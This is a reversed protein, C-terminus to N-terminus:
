VNHVFGAKRLLNLVLAATEARTINDKPALIGGGRGAVLGSGANWRAAELAWGSVDTSDSFMGICGMSGEFGAIKAMRWIIIMAEQRTIPRDPAFMNGGIGEVIGCEYAKGVVGSYWSNASVDSFVTGDGDAPLGLANIIIAVFEARTIDREGAFLNNGIGSIINLSFLENVADEYWKGAADKFVPSDSSGIDDTPPPPPTPQPKPASTSPSASSGGPNPNPTQAPPTDGSNAPLWNATVTINAPVSSPAAFTTIPSTPDALTVNGGEVTWGNFIWDERTGAHITVITGARYRGEGTIEAYSDEVTLTVAPGLIVSPDAFWDLLLLVDFIDVVGDGNLDSNARNIEVSPDTHWNLFRAVDREDVVGDGNIDGYLIPTWNATIIINSRIGSPATFTTAPSTPDAPTVSDYAVTWHSFTYDTYMGNGPDILGPRTGANISVTAGADYRGEGTTGAYSGNVTVYFFPGLPITHRNQPVTELWIRLILLDFSDIVGDANVDANALNFGPNAELFAPRETATTFLYRTLLSVDESDVVGDGNVDGYLIPTRNPGLFACSWGNIFNVLLEIDKADIVGDANVDANALNFNPNASLFAPKNADPTLRYINIDAVDFGNINGDGNADGYLIPTWNATVTVNGAPMTFITEGPNATPTVTVGGSIVTWGNFTYDTYM